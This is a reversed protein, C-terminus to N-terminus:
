VDHRSAKIARDAMAHLEDEGADPLAQRFEAIISARLEADPDERVVWQLAGGLAAAFTGYRDTEPLGQRIYDIAGERSKHGPVGGEIRIILEDRGLNHVFREFREVRVVMFVDYTPDKVRGQRGQPVSVVVEADDTEAKTM